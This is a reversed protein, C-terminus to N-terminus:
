DYTKWPLVLFIPRMWRREMMRVLREFVICEAIRRSALFTM